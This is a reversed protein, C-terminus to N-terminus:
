PRLVTKLQPQSVSGIFDVTLLFPDDAFRAPARKLDVIVLEENGGSRPCSDGVNGTLIKRSDFYHSSQFVATLDFVIECRV